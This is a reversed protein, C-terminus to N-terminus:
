EPLRPSLCCRPSPAPPSFLTTAHEVGTQRRSRSILYPVSESAPPLTPWAPILSLVCRLRYCMGVRRLPILPRVARGAWAPIILLCCTFKYIWSCIYQCCTSLFTYLFNYMLSCVYQYCFSFPLPSLHITICSFYLCVRVFQIFVSVSVYEYVFFPLDNQPTYSHTVNM